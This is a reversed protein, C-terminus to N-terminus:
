TGNCRKEKRKDFITIALCLILLQNVRTQLSCFLYHCTILVFYIGTFLKNM